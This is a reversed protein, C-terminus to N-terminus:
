SYRRAASLAGLVERAAAGGARRVEAPSGSGGMHIVVSVSNGGIAGPRNDAAPVIREGKHIQAIMDRPVYDTGIDFSPLADKLWDLGAGVVGGLGGKGGLDGFLRRGLDAAAANAIMRRVTEGFSQLMSKTGNAFPDFLFEAFASQINKAASKAFVDIGSVTAQVQEELSQMKEGAQQAARGFLELAAAGEGLTGNDLLTMLRDIEINLAEAPTRTADFIRQFDDARKRQEEAAADAAARLSALNDLTQAFGKAKELNAASATKYKGDAIAAELKEVETLNQTALIRDKLQQLLRQGDDISASRGGGSSRTVPIEPSFDIKRKPEVNSDSKLASFATKLRESFLTAPKRNDELRKDLDAFYAKNEKKLANFAESKESFSSNVDFAVGALAGVTYINRGLRELPTGLEIVIAKMLQLADVFNAVAMAGFQAWSRISGDAALIKVAGNVDNAEKALDALTRVFISAVPVLEAAITKVVASKAAELKKLNQEYEEAAQGQETTVKAVLAGNEALDELYPLLGAGAKGFIDVALATKSSGEEVESFAKAVEQLAKATDMSRLQDPDLELLSFAKGAGKSEEGAKSLTAALRVMGAELQGVEIGSLKAVSVLASINETTTGTVVALDKMNAAGEVYKDFVGMLAGVSLAGALGTFILALGSFASKIQGSANEAMSTAKKLDGELESLGTLMLTLGSFESKIQGSAKEALSTAQKLDSELKTLRAELDISLKAIPM